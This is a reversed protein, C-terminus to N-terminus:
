EITMKLRVEFQELAGGAALGSIGHTSPYSFLYMSVDIGLHSYLNFVHTKLITSRRTSAIIELRV